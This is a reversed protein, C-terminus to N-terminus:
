GILLFSVTAATGSIDIEDLEDGDDRVLVEEHALSGDVDEVGATRSLAEDITEACFSCSMGGINDQVQAAGM